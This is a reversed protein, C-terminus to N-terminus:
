SFQQLSRYLGSGHLLLKGPIVLKRELLSLPNARFGMAILYEQVQEDSFASYELMLVSEKPFLSMNFSMKIPVFYSFGLKTSSHPFPPAWITATNSYVLEYKWLASHFYTDSAKYYEYLKTWCESTIQGPSTM